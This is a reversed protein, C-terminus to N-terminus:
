NWRTNFLVVRYGDIDEFTKGGNDWWPNYSKVPEVFVFGPQRLHDRRQASWEQPVPLDSLRNGKGKSSGTFTLTLLAALALTKKM